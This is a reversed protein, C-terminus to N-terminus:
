RVDIYYLKCFTVVIAPRIPPGEDGLDEVQHAKGEVRSPSKREGLRRVFPTWIM